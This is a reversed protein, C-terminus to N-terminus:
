GGIPQRGQTQGVLSYPGLRAGYNNGPDQPFPTDMEDMVIDKYIAVLAIMDDGTLDTDNILGRERKMDELADEFLGHDVDMVVDGYM